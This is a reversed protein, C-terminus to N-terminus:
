VGAVKREDTAGATYRVSRRKVLLDRLLPALEGEDGALEIWQLEVLSEWPEEPPTEGDLPHAFVAIYRNTLRFCARSSDYPVQRTEEGHILPPGSM